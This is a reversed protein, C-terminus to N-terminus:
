IYENLYINLLKKKVKNKINWKANIIGDLNDALYAATHSQPVYHLSLTCHHLAFDQDVYHATLSMYPNNHATWCDTTYSVFDTKALEVKM